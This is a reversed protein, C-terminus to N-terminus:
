QEQSKICESCLGSFQLAAETIRYGTTHQVKNILESPVAMGDIDVIAGCRCCVAHPHPAVVADYHEQGNVSGVSKVLGAEALHLLNRYVTSLSLDHYVPKLSAYIWDATPHSDTSRLCDLIAERKKSYREM